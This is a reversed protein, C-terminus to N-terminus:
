KKADDAGYFGRVDRTMKVLSPQKIYMMHGSEYWAMTVNGNEAKELLHDQLIKEARLADRRHVVTM